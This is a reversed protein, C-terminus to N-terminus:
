RGEAAERARDRDRAARREAVGADTCFGLGSRQLCLLGLLRRTRADVVALRRRGCRRMMLWAETLDTDVSLSRDVLGGLAAAADTPTRGALDDREVVTVLQGTTDVVLAAHVHDDAFFRHLDAVTTDPSVVKPASLMADGITRGALGEPPDGVPPVAVFPGPVM